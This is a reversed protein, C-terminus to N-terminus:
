VAARFALGRIGKLEGLGKKFAQCGILRLDQVQVLQVDALAPSTKCTPIFRRANAHDM